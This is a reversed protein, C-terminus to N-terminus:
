HGVGCQAVQVVSYEVVCDFVTHLVRNPSMRRSALTTNKM